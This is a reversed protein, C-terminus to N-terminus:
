LTQTHIYSNINKSKDDSFFINYVETAKEVKEQGLRIFEQSCDYISLKNTAKCIVLFIMPKNFMRQYIYAQSDYNYTRASYMFKSSDSSTKIDVIAGDPFLKVEGNIEVEFSNNNIIDAKGKWMHGMISEINPIEYENGKAYILDYMVLSGKMKSIMYDLHMKEKALLLLNGDNQEKYLKTSRTSADIIKFDKLKEPELMATHFYRGQVMPLTEEQKKGFQTPDKLLKFIDSNSLYQKGYSGYYLEDDQLKELVQSKTEFPNIM